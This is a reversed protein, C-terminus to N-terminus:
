NLKKGIVDAIKKIQVMMKSFKTPKLSQNGDCLAHEPDNHVEVIIGDAGVALAALSLKEVMQWKGASHSPDIM